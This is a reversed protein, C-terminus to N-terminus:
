YTSTTGLVSPEMSAYTSPRLAGLATGLAGLATGTAAGLLMVTFIV